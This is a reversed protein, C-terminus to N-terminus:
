NNYNCVTFQKPANFQYEFFRLISNLITKPQLKVLKKKVVYLFPITSNLDVIQSNDEEKIGNYIVQLDKNKNTQVICNHVDDELSFEENIKNEEAQKFARQNRNRTRTGNANVPATRMNVNPNTDNPPYYYYNINNMNFHYCRKLIELVLSIFYFANEKTLLFNNQPNGNALIIDLKRIDLIRKCDRILSDIGRLIEAKSIDNNLINPIKLHSYNIELYLNYIMSQNGSSNLCSILTFFQEPTIYKLSLDELYNFNIFLEKPFNFCLNNYLNKYQIDDNMFYIVRNSILELSKIKSMNKPMDEIYLNKGEISFRKININEGDKLNIKNIATTNLLTTNIIIHINLEKCNQLDKFLNVNKNNIFKISCFIDIKKPFEGINLFEIIQSYIDNSINYHLFIQLRYVDCFIEKLMELIGYKEKEPLVKKLLNYGNDNVHFTFGEFINSDNWFHLCLIGSENKLANSILYLFTMYCCFLESLFCENNDKNFLTQESEMFIGIHFFKLKRPYCMILIKITVCFAYFNVPLISTYNNLKNSIFSITNLENCNFIENIQSKILTIKDIEEEYSSLLIEKVLVFILDTNTKNLEIEEIKDRNKPIKTLKQVGYFKNEPNEDSFETLNKYYKELEKIFTSNDMPSFILKFFDMDEKPYFLLCINKITEENLSTIKKSFGTTKNQFRNRLSSM